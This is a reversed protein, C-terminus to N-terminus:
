PMPHAFFWAAIAATADISTSVNGLGPVVVSSGPWQHGDGSLTCQEVDAGGGCDSWLVCTADGKAYVVDPAGLCSDASRWFSVTTDVSRFQIPPLLKLAPGGDYPVVPDATGHMDLVPVPRSPRCTDRPIGLVGSIPAIAAFTDAMACGLRHTMFGGNSFGTAYVRRPDVCYQSEVLALLDRVFQVDDVGSPQAETCCDGANWGNGLGDPYAVLFGRADAVPNMGTLLVQEPGNSGFGHFNLVLMAGAAPDYSPPVHLLSDRAFAGSTLTLLRDGASGTKGSCTPPAPEADGGGGGADSALVPVQGADDGSAPALSADRADLPALPPSVNTTGSVADGCAAVVLIGVVWRM